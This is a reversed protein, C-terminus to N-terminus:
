LRFFSQTFLLFSNNLSKEKNRLKFGESKRLKLQQQKPHQNQTLIWSTLKMM